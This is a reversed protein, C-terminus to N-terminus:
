DLDKELCVHTMRYDPMRKAWGKRMHGTIRSCGQHKAWAELDAILHLWDLSNEGNLFLIVCVKMGSAEVIIETAGVALLRDSWIMWLQAHDNRFSAIIADRDLRGRSRAIVENLHGDVLPLVKEVTEAPIHNLTPGRLDEAAAM